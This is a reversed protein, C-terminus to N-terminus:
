MSADYIPGSIIPAIWRMVGMGDDIGVEFKLHVVKDDAGRKNGPIVSTTQAQSGKFVM